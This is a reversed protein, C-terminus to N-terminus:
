CVTQIITGDIMTCVAQDVGVVPLIHKTPDQQADVLGRLGELPGSCVEVQRAHEPRACPKFEDTIALARQINRLDDDLRQEDDGSSVGVVHPTAAAASADADTGYVFLQGPFLPLTVHAEIGGYLRTSTVTPLYCQVDRAALQGALIKERRSATRVIFWRAGQRKPM